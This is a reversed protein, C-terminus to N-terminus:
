FYVNAFFYNLLFRRKFRRVILNPLNVLKCKEKYTVCGICKLIKRLNDITIKFDPFKCMDIEFDNIM